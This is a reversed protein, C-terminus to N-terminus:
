RFISWGPVPARCAQALRPLPMPSRPRSGMWFMPRPVGLRLAEVPIPAPVAPLEGAMIADVIACCAISIALPGISDLTTSLPMVGDRPIRYQTPKFGAIGCFAAPIRVAGGTDTGIGVVAQGDAVSVAAGSSSGGPILRRDYPNGPTGYHLNIGGGSFAFETMNTRGILVAGAARLRAITPADHAAPPSDDLAKSGALTREGAVDFLDKVSVPLGALPSAVYGAKRLRDQADAAAMASDAYVAVFTRAGEGDPAAVRALAAEVLERSSTRGAALAEALDLVTRNFGPMQM